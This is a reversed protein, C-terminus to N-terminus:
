WEQWPAAEGMLWLGRVKQWRAHFFMKAADGMAAQVHAPVDKARVQKQRQGWPHGPRGHVLWDDVPMVKGTAPDIPRQVKVIESMTARRQHRNM